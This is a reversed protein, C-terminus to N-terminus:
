IFSSIRLYRILHSREVVQSKTESLNVKALAIRILIFVCWEVQISVHVATCLKLCLLRDTTVTESFDM